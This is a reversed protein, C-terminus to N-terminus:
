VASVQSRFNLSRKGYITNAFYYGVLHKRYAMIVL